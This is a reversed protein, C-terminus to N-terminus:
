DSVGRRAGDDQLYHSIYAAVSFIIWVSSISQERVEMFSGVVVVVEVVM